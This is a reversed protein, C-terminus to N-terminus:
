AQTICEEFIGQTFEWVKDTVKSERMTALVKENDTAEGDPNVLFVGGGSTVVPELSAPLPVLGRGDKVAYHDSTALFLGRSGSEAENMEHPVDWHQKIKAMGPTGVPGPYWHVISLKPNEQAIKELSLTGMTTSHVSAAWFTWNGPQRLDLDEDNLTEEKGGAAVWLVRPSSARQLLPLLKILVLLRTYYRTTMSPDLGEMTNKRGDFPIFGASLVLLDLKEENQLIEEVAGNIDSLLTHDAKILSYSGGPNRQRLSTLFEEHTAASQPRAISYIQPERAKTALKELTSRGIGSTAGIFVAVLKKPLATVHNNSQEIVDLSVMKTILNHLVSSQLLYIHYLSITHASTLQNTRLWSTYIVEVTIAKFLLTPETAYQMMPKMEHHTLRGRFESTDSYGGEDM